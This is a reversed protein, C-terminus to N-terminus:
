TWRVGSTKVNPMVDHVVTAPNSHLAQDDNEVGDDVSVNSCESPDTGSNQYFICVKICRSRPRM